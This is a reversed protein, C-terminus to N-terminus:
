HTRLLSRSMKQHPLLSSAPSLASRELEVEVSEASIGIRSRAASVTTRPASKNIIQEYRV